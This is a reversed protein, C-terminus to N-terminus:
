KILQVGFIQSKQMTSEFLFAIWFNQPRKGTIKLIQSERTGPWQMERLNRLSNAAAAALGIFILFFRTGQAPGRARGLGSKEFRHRAAKTERPNGKPNAALSMLIRNQEM